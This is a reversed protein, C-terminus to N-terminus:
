APAAQRSRLLEGAHAADLPPHLLYGQLGECGLRLLM